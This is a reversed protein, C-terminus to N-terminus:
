PIVEARAALEAAIDAIWYSIASEARKIAAVWGGAESQLADTVPADIAEPLGQRYAILDSEIAQLEGRLVVLQGRAWRLTDDYAM